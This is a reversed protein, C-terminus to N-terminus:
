LLPKIKKVFDLASPSDGHICLTDAQVKVISCDVTLVEGDRAMRLAQDAAEDGSQILANKQTRSVLYGESTHIAVVEISM